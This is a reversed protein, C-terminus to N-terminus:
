IRSQMWIRGIRAALHKPPEAHVRAGLDWAERLLVTRRDGILEALPERLPKPALSRDRRVADALRGLERDDRLILVLRGTEEALPSLVQPWAHSLFRIHHALFGVERGWAFIKKETPKRRAELMRRLGQEAIQEFGARLGAFGESQVPLREIRLLSSRLTAEVEGLLSSQALAFALELHRAELRAILVGTQLRDLGEGAEQEIREARAILRGSQHIPDILGLVKRLREDETRYVREGVDHRVLRLLGRGKTLLDCIRDVAPNLDSDVRELHRLADLILSSALRRVESRVPRGPHLALLDTM